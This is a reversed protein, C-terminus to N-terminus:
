RVIRWGRVKMCRESMSRDVEPEFVMRGIVPVGGVHTNERDCQYSDREFNSRTSKRPDAHTWSEEYGCSTLGVLAMMLTKKM